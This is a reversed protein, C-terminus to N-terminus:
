EYLQECYACGPYQRPHMKEEFLQRGKKTTAARLLRDLVLLYVELYGWGLFHTRFIAEQV